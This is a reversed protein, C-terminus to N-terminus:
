LRQPSNFAHLARLLAQPSRRATPRFHAAANAESPGIPFDGDVQMLPGWGDISATSSFFGGDFLLGGAQRM